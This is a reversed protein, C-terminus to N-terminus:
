SIFSEVELIHVNINNVTNEQIKVKIKNLRHHGLIDWCYVFMKHVKEKLMCLLSHGKRSCFNYSGSGPNFLLNSQSQHIRIQGTSQFNLYKFM